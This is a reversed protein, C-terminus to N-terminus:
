RKEPLKSKFEYVHGGLKIKSILCDDVQDWKVADINLILPMYGGDAAKMKILNNYKEIIYYQNETQSYLKIREIEVKDIKFDFQNSEILDVYRFLESSQQTKINNQRMQQFTLSIMSVAISIILLSFITEVLSFGNRQKNLSIKM